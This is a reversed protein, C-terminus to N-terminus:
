LGDTPTVVGTKYAAEPVLRSDKFQCVSLFLSVSPKELFGFKRLFNRYPLISYRSYKEM